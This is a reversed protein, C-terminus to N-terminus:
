CWETWMAGPKHDHSCTEETMLDLRFEDEDSDAWIGVRGGEFPLLGFTRIVYGRTWNALTEAGEETRDWYVFQYIGSKSRSVAVGRNVYDEWLDEPSDKAKLCIVKCVAEGVEAPVEMHGTSRGALTGLLDRYIEGNVAEPCNSRLEAESVAFVESMERYFNFM